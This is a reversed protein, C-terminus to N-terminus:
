RSSPAINATSLNFIAIYGAAESPACRPSAALAGYYLALIRPSHIFSSTMSPLSSHTSYGKHPYARNYLPFRVSRLLVLLTLVAWFVLPINGLASTVPSCHSLTCASWAVEEIYLELKEIDAGMWGILAKRADAGREESALM